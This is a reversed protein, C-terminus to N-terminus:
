SDAFFLAVIRVRTMFESIEASIEASIRVKM